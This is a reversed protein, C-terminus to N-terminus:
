KSFFQVYILVIFLISVIGLITMTIFIKKETVRSESSNNVELLLQNKKQENLLLQQSQDLLKHLREIEKGKIELQEFLYHFSTEWEPNGIHEKVGKKNINKSIESVIKKTESKSNRIRGNLILLLSNFENESVIRKNGKISGLQYKNLIRNLYQKTVGLEQAIEAVTKSM